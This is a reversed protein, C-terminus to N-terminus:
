NRINESKVFLIEITFINAGGKESKSLMNEMTFIGAGSKENKIFM